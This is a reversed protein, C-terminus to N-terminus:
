GIKFIGFLDVILEQNILEAIDSSSVEFEAMGSQESLCYPADDIKQATCPM